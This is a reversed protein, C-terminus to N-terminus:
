RTEVPKAKAATEYVVIWSTGHELVQIVRGRGKEIALIADTLTDPHNMDRPVIRTPM